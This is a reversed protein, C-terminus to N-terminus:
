HPFGNAQELESQRQERAIRALKEEEHYKEALVVAEGCDKNVATYELANLEGKLRSYEAAEPGDGGELAFLAPWFLIMGIAMQGEDDAALKDLVQTLDNIRNTTLAMEAQIENCELGKYAVPSVHSAQLEYSHSACGGALAVLATLVFLYTAHKM